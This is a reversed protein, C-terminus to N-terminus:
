HACLSTVPIDRVLILEDYGEANAFTTLEFPAPTLLEEFAAVVRRPTETLEPDRFDQGLAALLEWVAEQARDRDISPTAPDPLARLAPPTFVGESIIDIATM